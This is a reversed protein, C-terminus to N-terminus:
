KFNYQYEPNEKMIFKSQPYNEVFWVLFATVDIKNTLMLERRKYWEEKLGITQILEICKKIANLQDNESESYNFMIGFDKELHQTYYTSNDFLYVSPVGLMAAEEAMTSSEGFLLSSFAIVDHMRHPDIRIKYQILEDPVDLESSIFVKAHKSFEEVVKLKNSYSIGQHGIDHSANWSVFRIIIYKDNEKLGLEDLIKKDPKYRKPHLYLLEQYGHYQIEKNGLSPHDYDGTLVCDTFPLYIKVQEKNFTDELSIHPKRLIWATIASYMSANFLMDPKFKMAILLMRLTFYIFGFLKGPISKFPKGFSIYDLSYSNLLAITVEKDRCTFLIRHGKSEMEKAFNRFYHVHAPHGIDILYKM